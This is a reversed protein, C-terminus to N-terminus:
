CIDKKKKWEKLKEVYEYPLKIKGILVERKYKGHCDSGGTILLNNKQAFNLIAETTQKNHDSHFVEIGDIGNKILAPLLEAVNDLGPHAVVAIGGSEKIIEVVEKSSFRFRSVYCPKGDGIYKSFVTKLSDVFGNEVLYRAVHLRSVANIKAFKIIEGANAKVGCENLKETMRYIREKRGECTQKLKEKLKKSQWDILYGLIHLERDGEQATMEVAPVIEINYDSQLGLMIPTADVNDHDAIAICQLNQAKANAMVEKPSFSGDSFNTHIHLDATKPM